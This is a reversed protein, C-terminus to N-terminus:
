DTHRSNEPELFMPIRPRQRCCYTTGLYGDCLGGVQRRNTRYGGKKNDSTVILGEPHIPPAILSNLHNSISSLLRFSAANLSSAPATERKPGDPLGFNLLIETETCHVKIILIRRSNARYM